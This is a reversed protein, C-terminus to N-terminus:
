HNEKFLAFPSNGIEIQLYDQQSLKSTKFFKEIIQNDLFILLGPRSPLDEFQKKDFYSKWGEIYGKNEASNEDKIIPYGFLDIKNEYFLYTKLSVSKEYFEVPDVIVIVQTGNVYNTSIASLLKKNANGEKSFEMAETVSKFSFPLFSVIVLILAIKKFWVPNEYIGKIYTVVLFGLGLSSPLLYREVLGSKAYLM